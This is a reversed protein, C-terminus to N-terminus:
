KAAYHGALESLQRGDMEVRPSGGDVEYVPPTYQQKRYAYVEGHEFANHNPAEVPKEQLRGRRRRLIVWTLLGVILAVGAIAGIAVGAIAGTSLGSTGSGDGSSESAPLAKLTSSWTDAWNPPNIATAISTDKSSIKKVYPPLASLDPGPAQALFLYGSQWNQAIFAGQLFARGLHYPVDTSTWRSCPLYPTSTSVLPWELTLNLLAFPIDITSTKGNSSFSFGIYHPSSIIDHYASSSTDWFYLNFDENYTVPLYAALADCTDQPLYLYPVAPNPYVTLDSISKGDDKMLNTSPSISKTYASGGSAVGLTVASLTVHQSNSVIPETLCRSSDYGGVVLSGPVKHVASGVHLGYSISPIYGRLYADPLTRKFTVTSGNTSAKWSINEDVGSLSLFGSDLTYGAGGPFTAKYSESLMMGHNDLFAPDDEMGNEHLTIREAFFKGSGKLRLLASMWADWKSSDVAKSITKTGGSVVFAGSQQWLTPIPLPCAASQDSCADESVALSTQTLGPLM